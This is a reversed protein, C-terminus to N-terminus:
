HALRQTHRDLWAHSGCSGRVQWVDTIVLINNAWLLSIRGDTLETLPRSM